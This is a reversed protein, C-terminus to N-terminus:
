MREMVVFGRLGEIRFRRTSFILNSVIILVKLSLCSFFEFFRVELKLVKIIRLVGDM